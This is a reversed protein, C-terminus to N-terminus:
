APFDKIEARYILEAKRENEHRAILTTVVLDLEEIKTCKVV